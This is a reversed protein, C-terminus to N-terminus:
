IFCKLGNIASSPICHDEFNNWNMRQPVLIDTGIKNFFGAWLEPSMESLLLFTSKMNSTCLIDPVIIDNAMIAM